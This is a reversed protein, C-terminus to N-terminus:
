PPVREEVQRQADTQGLIRRVEAHRDVDRDPQIQLTAPKINGPPRDAMRRHVPKLRAFDLPMGFGASVRLRGRDACQFTRERGSAGSVLSCAKAEDGVLRGEGRFVDWSLLGLRVRAISIARM